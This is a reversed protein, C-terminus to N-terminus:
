MGRSIGSGRSRNKFVRGVEEGVMRAIKRPDGNAGSVNINVTTDGGGSLSGQITVPITRGDPLPVVAETGHLTAPYGSKPGSAIGGRALKMGEIDITPLNALGPIRNFTKIGSNILKFVPSIFDIISNVFQKFFKKVGSLVDQFIDGISSIHEGVADFDGRLLAMAARVIAMIIRVVGLVVAVFAGFAAFVAKYYPAVYPYIWRIFKIVVAVIAAVIVIVTAIIEWAMAVLEIVFSILGSNVLWDVLYTVLGMVGAIIDGIGIGDLAWSLMDFVTVLTDWLMMITDIIMQVWGAEILTNVIFFIADYVATHIEMFIGFVTLLGDILGEFFSGGDMDPLTVNARLTEWVGLFREKWVDLYDTITEMSLGLGGIKEKVLVIGDKLLKMADGVLPLNDVWKLLTGGGKDFVVAFLLMAGMVGFIVGMIPMLALLMGKFLGVVGKLVLSFPKWAMKTAKQTAKSSSKVVGTVSGMAMKMKMHATYLPGLTKMLIRHKDPLIAIADKYQNITAVQDWLEQPVGGTEAM